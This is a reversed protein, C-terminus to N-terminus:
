RHAPWIFRLKVLWDPLFGVFQTLPDPSTMIDLDYILLTSMCTVKVRIRDKETREWGHGPWPCDTKMPSRKGDVQNIKMWTQM